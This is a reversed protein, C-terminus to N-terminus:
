TPPIQPMLWWMHGGAQKKLYSRAKKKKEKKTSSAKFWLGGLTKEKKKKKSVSNASNSLGAQVQSIGVEAEQTAPIVSVAGGHRGPSNKYTLTLYCLLLYTGLMGSVRSETGLVLLPPPILYYMKLTTTYNWISLNPTKTM